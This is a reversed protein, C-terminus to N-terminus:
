SQVNHLWNNVAESTAASVDAPEMRSCWEIYPCGGYASCHNRNPSVARLQRAEDAVLATILAKIQKWRRYVQVTTTEFSVERVARLSPKLNKAYQIHSLRITSGANLPHFGSAISWKAVMYAYVWLQINNPLTEETEAWYFNAVTKHDAIELVGRDIRILDVLGRIPMGAVQIDQGTWDTAVSYRAADDNPIGLGMEVRVTDLGPAPLFGAQRAFDGLPDLVTGGTNGRLYSEVAAHLDNGRKQATSSVARFGRLQMVALRACKLFTTLDSSSIYKQHM